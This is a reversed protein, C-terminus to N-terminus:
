EIHGGNKFIIRDVRKQFSKFAKLIFEESMENWEENIATKLSGINSYLTANPKNELVGRNYPLSLYALLVFM